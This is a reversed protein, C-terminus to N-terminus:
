KSKTRKEFYEIIYKEHESININEPFNDVRFNKWGVNILFEDNTLYNPFKYDISGLSKENCHDYIEKCFEEITNFKFFVFYDYTYPVDYNNGYEEFIIIKNEKQAKEIALQQASISKM